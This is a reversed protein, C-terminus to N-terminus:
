FRRLLVIGAAIMWGVGVPIIAFGYTLLGSGGTLMAILNLLLIRKLM